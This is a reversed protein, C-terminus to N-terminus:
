AGGCPSARLSWGPRASERADRLLTRLRPQSDGVHRHLKGQGSEINGVCVVPHAHYYDGWHRGGDDLRSAQADTLVIPHLGLRHFANFLMRTATFLVWRYGRAHLHHTTASILWRTDGPRDLALHGVEVLGHRGIQVGLRDAIIEQAPDALYQESFLTGELGGRFGVVARYQTADRFGLLTPHFTTVDAGYRRKFVRHVFAEAHKRDPHGEDLVDVCVPSQLEALLPEVTDLVCPDSPRPLPSLSM